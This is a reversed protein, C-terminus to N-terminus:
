LPLNQLALSYFFPQTTIARYMQQKEKENKNPKPSTRYM